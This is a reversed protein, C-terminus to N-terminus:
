RGIDGTRVSPTGRMAVSGYIPFRPPLSFSPSQPSSRVVAHGLNRANAPRCHRSGNGHSRGTLPRAILPIRLAICFAPGDRIDNALRQRSPETEAADKEIMIAEAEGPMLRRRRYIISLCRHSGSYWADVQIDQALSARLQSM